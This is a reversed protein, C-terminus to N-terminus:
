MIDIVYDDVFGSSMNVDGNAVITWTPTDDSANADLTTVLNGSADIIDFTDIAELDVIHRLIAIADSISINGDNDIDAAHFEASGASFEELKVIHRLVDIADGIEIADNFDFADTASLKVEDFEVVETIIVNSDDIVASKNLPSGDKYLDISLNTIGKQNTDFLQFSPKVNTILTGGPEEVLNTAETQYAYNSGSSDMIGLSSTDNGSEQSPTESLITISKNDLDMLYIQYLNPDTNLTTYNSSFMLQSIGSNLGLLEYEVIGYSDLLSDLNSTLRQQIGTDINKIFIDQSQNSDGDVLEDSNSVYVITNKVIIGQNLKTSAAENLTTKSILTITNEESGPTVLYLDNAENLDDTSFEAAATEILVKTVGDVTSFGLVYAPESGEDDNTIQSVRQLTEDLIDLLFVDSIDNTDLYDVLNNAASSFVVQTGLSNVVVNDIGTNAVEQTSTKIIDNDILVGNQVIAIRNGTSTSLYSSETKDIYVIAFTVGSISSWAVDISTISVVDSGGLYDSINTTYSKNETDYVYYSKYLKSSDIYNIEVLLQTAFPAMSIPAVSVILSASDGLLSLEPEDIPLFNM